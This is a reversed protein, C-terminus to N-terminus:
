WEIPCSYAHLSECKYGKSVEREVSWEDIALQRAEQRRKNTVVDDVDLNFISVYKLHRPYYLLYALDKMFNDRSEKLNQLKSSEDNEAVSIANIDRNLTNIKRLIKKREFFKVQHYKISYKREKEKQKNDLNQQKLSELDGTLKERMENSIGDRKLIRDIDRIRKKVSPMTIDVEITQDGFVQSKRLDGKLLVMEHGTVTHFIAPVIRHGRGGPVM